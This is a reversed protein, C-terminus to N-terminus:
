LDCKLNSVGEFMFSKFGKGGSYKNYVVTLNEKVKSIFNPCNKFYPRFYKQFFKKDDKSNNDSRKRKYVFKENKKNFLYYYFSGHSFYETLIYRDNQIIVQHLRKFGFTSGIKLRTYYNNGVFLESIKKQMVKKIDGEKNHYFLREATLAYDAIFGLEGFTEKENISKYIEVKEGKNNIFYGIPNNINEPLLSSANTDRLKTTSTNPSSYSSVSILTLFITILQKIKIM